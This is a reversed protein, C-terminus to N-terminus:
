NAKKGAAVVIYSARWMPGYHILRRMAIDELRFYWDSRFREALKALTLWFFFSPAYLGVVHDMRYNPRLQMLKGFITGRVARPYLLSKYSLANYAAVIIASEGSPAVGEGISFPFLGLDAPESSRDSVHVAVDFMDAIIRQIEVSEVILDLRANALYRVASIAMEASRTAIRVSRPRMSHVYYSMMGLTYRVETSYANTQVAAMTICARDRLTLGM